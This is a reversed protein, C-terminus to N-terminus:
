KDKERHKTYDVSESEQVLCIEKFSLNCSSPCSYVAISAWDVSDIEAPYHLLLTPLLQFEFVREAGCLCPPIVSWNSPPPHPWLPKGCYAYRMIQGNVAKLRNTFTTFYKESPSTKEFKEDYKSGGKKEKTGKKADMKNKGVHESIGKGELTSIDTDGDDLTFLSTMDGGDLFINMAKNALEKHKNSLIDVEAKSYDGVPENLINMYRPEIYASLKGDENSPSIKDYRPKIEKEETAVKKCTSGKATLKADRFNLLEEVSLEEIKEVTTGWDDDAKSTTTTSDGWGSEWVSDDTTALGWGGDSSSNWDTSVDTSWDGGAINVTTPLSSVPLIPTTSPVVAKDDQSRIVVWTSNDQIFQM